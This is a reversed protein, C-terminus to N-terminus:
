LSRLYLHASLAKVGGLYHRAARYYKWVFMQTGRSRYRAELRKQEREDHALVFIFYKVCVELLERENPLAILEQMTTVVGEVPEVYSNFDLHLTDMTTEQKVHFM